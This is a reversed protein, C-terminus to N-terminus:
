LPSTCNDILLSRPRYLFCIPPKKMVNQGRCILHGCSNFAVFLGRIDNRTLSLTIDTTAIHVRSCSIM